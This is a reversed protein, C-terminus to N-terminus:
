EPETSGNMLNRFLALTLAGTHAVYNDTECTVHSVTRDQCTGIITLGIFEGERARELYLELTAVIDDTIENDIKPDFKLLEM